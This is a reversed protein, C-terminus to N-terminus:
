WRRSPVRRRSACPLGTPNRHTPSAVPRGDHVSHGPPGPPVLIRLDGYGSRFKPADPASDPRIETLQKRSDGRSVFDRDEATLRRGKVGPVVTDRALPPPTM